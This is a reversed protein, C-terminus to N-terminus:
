LSLIHLPFTNLHVVVDDEIFLKSLNLMRGIKKKSPLNEKILLRTPTKSVLTSSSELLTIWFTHSHFYYSTSAGARSEYFRIYTQSSELITNACIIIEIYRERPDFMKLTHDSSLTVRQLCFLGRLRVCLFRIIIIKEDNDAIIAGTWKFSYFWQMMNQRWNMTIRAKHSHEKPRNSYKATMDTWIYYLM